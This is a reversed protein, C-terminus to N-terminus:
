SCFSSYTEEMCYYEIIRFSKKQNETLLHYENKVNRMKLRSVDNSYYLHKLVLM